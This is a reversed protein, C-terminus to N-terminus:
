NYGLIVVSDIEDGGPQPRELHEMDFTEHEPVYPSGFYANSTLNTEMFLYRTEDKDIHM